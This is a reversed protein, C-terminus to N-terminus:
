ATAGQLQPVAIVGNRMVARFFSPENGNAFDVDHLLWGLDREGALSCHPVPETTGEELLAFHAAFERCGFYPRTHCQGSKARRSFQDLHKAANNPGSIIEFHAAIIYAVDCLIMSARQQRVEEIWIGLDGTGSSMAEQPARSSIKASIENRRINAFRIPNLVTVRDVIWRIEPKWYIAELIGRAASPTIVDYSLREVKMEPRTFCAWEGWCHLKVGYAM